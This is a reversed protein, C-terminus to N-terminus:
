LRRTGGSSLLGIASKTRRHVSAQFGTIHIADKGQHVWLEPHVPHPAVDDVALAQRIRNATLGVAGRHLQEWPAEVTSAVVKGNRRSDLVAV